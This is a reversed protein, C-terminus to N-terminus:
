SKGPAVLKEQPLRCRKGKRKAAGVGLSMLKRGTCVVVVRNTIEKFVFLAVCVARIVKAVEVMLAGAAGAAPPCYPDAM